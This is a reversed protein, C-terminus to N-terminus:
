RVLVRVGAGSAAPDALGSMEVQLASAGDAAIAQAVARGESDIVARLAAAQADPDQGAAPRTVSQVTFLVNPKRALAEHVSAALRKQWDEPAERTQIVLLPPIPPPAVSVVKPAHAVPKRGAQSDFTRQDILKCGGLLSGSALLLGLALAAGSRLHPHESPPSIPPM